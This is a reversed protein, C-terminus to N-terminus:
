REYSHPLRHNAVLRCVDSRQLFETRRQMGFRLTRGAKTEVRQVVLHIAAVHQLGSPFLATGVATRGADIPLRKRVDLLVADFAPQAFQRLFQSRFPVLRLRDPPNIQRFRVPLPPRQPNGRDAVAHHLGGHQQDQLRDELGVQLGLLIRIARVM